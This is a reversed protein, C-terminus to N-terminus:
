SLNIEWLFEDEGLTKSVWRSYVFFYDSLRNIYKLILPNLEESENLKWLLRELRRCVTRAMHAWANLKGGGPLTFSKLEELSEQYEDMKKELTEIDSVKIQPLKSSDFDVSCALLSGVDFLKNQILKMMATTEDAVSKNLRAELAETRLVGVISNLEDVTGYVELRLSTKPIKKGDVLSTQGADGSKTYIKNLKVM